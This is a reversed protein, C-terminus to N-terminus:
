FGDYGGLGFFCDFHTGESTSFYSSSTAFNSFSTNLNSFSL